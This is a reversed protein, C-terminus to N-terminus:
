DEKTQAKGTAKKQIIEADESEGQAETEEPVDTLGELENRIDELLAELRKARLELFQRRWRPDQEADPDSGRGKLGLGQFRGLLGGGQGLGAGQFRRGRGLGGGGQGLGAGQFGRGLLGRGGRRGNM